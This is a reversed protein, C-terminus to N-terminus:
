DIDQLRPPFKPRVKSTARHFRGITTLGNRPQRVAKHLGIPARAEAMDVLHAGNGIATEATKVEDKIQRANITVVVTATGDQEQLVRHMENGALRDQGRDTAIGRPHGCRVIEFTMVTVTRGGATKGMHRLRHKHCRYQLQRSQLPQQPITRCPPLLLRFRTM